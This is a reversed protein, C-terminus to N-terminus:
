PHGVNADGLAERYGRILSQNEKSIRANYFVKRNEEDHVGKSKKAIFRGLLLEGEPYLGSPVLDFVYKMSKM